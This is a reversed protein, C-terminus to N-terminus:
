TGTLGIESFRRRCNTKIEAIKVDILELLNVKRDILDELENLNFWIFCIRDTLYYDHALIPYTNPAPKKSVIIGLKGDMTHLISHLKSLYEGKPTIAENKCEIVYYNCAIGFLGEPIYSTVRVFTDIQNTKTKFDTAAKFIKCLGFLDACFDELTAGTGTTTTQPSKVRSLEEKLRSYDSDTPSFLEDYSILHYQIARCLDDAPAVAQRVDDLTPEFLQQGDAFPSSDGIISFTVETNASLNTDDFQFVKDCRPCYEEQSTFVEDLVNFVRIPGGCDPCCLTYRKIVFGIDVCKVLFRICEKYDIETALSLKHATIIKKGAPSLKALYCDFSEIHQLPFSDNLTLLQSYYM